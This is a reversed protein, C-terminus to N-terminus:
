KKKKRKERTKWAREAGSKWYKKWQEDTFFRKYNDDIKQLWKDQVDQYLDANEVKATQLKELEDTMAKLDHTLTSDVYFEQWYELDLLTSLRQVEKDVYELLQKEKQEPTQPQQNQAKATFVSLIFLAIVSLFHYFKM